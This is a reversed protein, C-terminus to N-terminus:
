GAEVRDLGGDAVRVRGTLLDDMLAQKLLALKTIEDRHSNAAGRARDAFAIISDQEHLSPLAIPCARVDSQNISTQAVASKASAKFHAMAQPQMLWLAVYATRAHDNNIRCRMINSEFVVPEPTETVMASKGVFDISNVRNILIDGASVGFMRVEAANIRIRKLHSIAQVGGEQISDIRIIPTGDNVYESSPKYLGNKPTGLLIDSLTSRSEGRVLLASIEASQTDISKSLLRRAKDILGDLADLIEGIRRQEESSPVNVRITAFSSYKLNWTDSVLGQSLRYFAAILRPQRLFYEMFNPDIWNAPECVTYAPSVIGDHKSCGVVGQWMRMTNYVIDGQHVRWYTSKDESSINRRGAETQPIVGRHQTVSLLRETGNARERRVRLIDRLAVETWTSKSGNFM